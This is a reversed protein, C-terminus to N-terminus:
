LIEQTLSKLNDVAPKTLREIAELAPVFQREFCLEEEFARMAACGMQRAREQNTMLRNLGEAISEPSTEDVSIGCGYREVFASLSPQSSVLLPLGSAMYEQIKCSGSIHLNNIHIPEYLAHGVDADQTYRSVEDYNVAPLVVFQREVRLTRALQMLHEVYEPESLGMLVFGWNSSSWHPISRLTVEIAHGRGVRGQRFIIKEFKREREALAEQLKGKTSAEQARALPANAIVLPKQRLRLERELIEGLGSEPVTLLDSARAFRRQFRRVLDSGKPLKRKNDAYDYCHYILPRRRLRSLMKAPLFGHMDHGIFLAAERSARRLVQGVFSSYEVWASGTETKIRHIRVVSPYSVDWEKGDSRCFIDLEYGAQALLRAGNIIAPYHDPNGYFVSQILRNNITL